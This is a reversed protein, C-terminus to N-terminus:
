NPQLQINIDCSQFDSICVHSNVAKYSNQESSKYLPKKSM